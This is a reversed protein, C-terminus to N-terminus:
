KKCKKLISPCDVGYGKILQYTLALSIIESVHYYEVDQVIKVINPNGCPNYQASIMATDIGQDDAWNLANVISNASENNISCSFAVVLCNNKNLYKTRIDLWNKLWNHFNDDAIFSTSVIASSPSIINKGSLRCSDVAAHDAVAMNGGHGLFFINEAKNYSNQLKEWETSSIIRDFTREFNELELKRM